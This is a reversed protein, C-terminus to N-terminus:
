GLTLNESDTTLSGIKSHVPQVKTSNHRTMAADHIKM